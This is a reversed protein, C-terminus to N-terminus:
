KSRPEAQGAVPPAGHAPPEGGNLPSGSPLPLQRDVRSALPGYVTEQLRIVDMRLNEVKDSLTDIKTELRTQANSISYYCISFVGIFIAVVLGMFLMLMKLQVALTELRNSKEKSATGGLAREGAIALGGSATLEPALEGGAARGKPVTMKLAKDWTDRVQALEADSASGNLVKQFLVMIGLTM